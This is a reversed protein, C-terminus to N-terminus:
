FRWLANPIVCLRKSIYVLSQYFFFGKYGTFYTDELGGAPTGLFQDAWGNFAHLTALPTQFGYLGDGGLLEYGAKVTFANIGFGFEALLYDADITSAGDKYDFQDAYEVTYLCKFDDSFAHSGRFRVGYTQTSRLPEDDFELLYAYGSVRGVAFDYSINALPASLANDALLPFPNDEGFVRNVNNLYGVFLKFEPTFEFWGSGGDFTQNNQRWDVSGIYRQNDLNIVQRGLKFTMEDLPRYGLFAQNVETSEPDAIIPFTINGNATSDFQEGGLIENHEFEFRAFLGYYLGTTYGLRLRITSARADEAFNSQEVVEYRYRLDFNVKGETLAEKLSEASSATSVCGSLVIAMVLLRGAAGCRQAKMKEEKGWEISANRGDRGPRARWPGCVPVAQRGTARM